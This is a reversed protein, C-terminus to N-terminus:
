AFVICLILIEFRVIVVISVPPNIVDHIPIIVFVFPIIYTVVNIVFVITLIVYPVIFNGNSKYEAFPYAPIPTFTGCYVNSTLPVILENEDIVDDAEIDVKDTELM